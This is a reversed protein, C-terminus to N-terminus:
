KNNELYESAAIAATAGDGVATSVQRLLKARVDGAAFLGPLSTRMKDDTIIYGKPDLPAIDSAFETNPDLGIYIFVGDCPITKEEGGNVPVVRVGSVKTDGDIGVLKHSFLFEVNDRERIRDQLIKDAMMHPLIEIFTIHSAFKLLFLGEQIGSNGTGIVVIRKGQYFPGDCTACYSIGKGIFKKEDLIGLRKPETGTAIIIAKATINEGGAKAIFVRNEKELKQIDRSEVSVGLGNLQKEFLKMLEAGSLPEPFGPYNEIKDTNAIEGGVGMKEVISFDLKARAAYIAATLGAPGAGVILLDVKDKKKVPSTGMVLFDSM